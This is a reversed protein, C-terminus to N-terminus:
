FQSCSLRRNNITSTMMWDVILQNPVLMNDHLLVSWPSLLEGASHLLQQLVVRVSYIKVNLKYLVVILWHNNCLRVLTGRDM